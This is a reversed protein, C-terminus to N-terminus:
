QKLSNFSTFNINTKSVKLVSQQLGTRDRTVQIHAALPHSARPQGEMEALASQVKYRAAELYTLMSRM